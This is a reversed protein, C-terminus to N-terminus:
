SGCTLCGIACEEAQAEAENQQEQEEKTPEKMSGDTRVKKSKETTESTQIEGDKDPTKAVNFLNVASKQLEIQGAEKLLTEVDLTFKIADVAPRSRLYYM